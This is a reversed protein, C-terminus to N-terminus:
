KRGEAQSSDIKSKRGWVKFYFNLHGIQSKGRKKTCANLMIFKGTLLAKTVHLLYKYTTNKSENLESDNRIERSIHTKVWTNNLLMVNLTYTNPSKEGFKSKNETELNIGDKSSFLIQIGRAKQM